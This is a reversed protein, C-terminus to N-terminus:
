KAVGLLKDSRIPHGRPCLLTSKAGSDLDLAIQDPAQNFKVIRLTTSRCVSSVSPVSFMEESMRILEPDDFWFDSHNEYATHLCGCPFFCDVESYIHAVSGCFISPYCDHVLVFADLLARRKDEDWVSMKGLWERDFSFCNESFLTLGFYHNKEGVVGGASADTSAVTM